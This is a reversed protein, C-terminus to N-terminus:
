EIGIKSPPPKHDGDGRPLSAAGADYGKDYAETKAQCLKINAQNKTAAQSILKSVILESVSAMFRQSDAYHKAADDMLRREMDVLARKTGGAQRNYQEDSHQHLAKVAATLEGSLVRVNDIAQGSQYDLHEHVLKNWEGIQAYLDELLFTMKRIQKKIKM